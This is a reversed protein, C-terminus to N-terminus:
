SEERCSVDVSIRSANAAQARIKQGAQLIFYDAVRQGMGAPITETLPSLYALITDSADTRVITVTSSNTGDYNTAILNFCQVGLGASPAQYVDTM